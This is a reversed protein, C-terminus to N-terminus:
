AASPDDDKEMIEPIRLVLEQLAAEALRVGIMGNVIATQSVVAFLPSSLAASNMMMRIDEPIEATDVAARLVEKPLFSGVAGLWSCAVLFDYFRVCDDKPHGAGAMELLSFYALQHHVMLATVYPALRKTARAEKIPDRLLEAFAESLSTVQPGMFTDTSLQLYQQTTM